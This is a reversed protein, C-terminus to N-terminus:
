NQLGFNEEAAEPCIIEGGRGGTGSGEQAALSPLIRRAWRQDEGGGM